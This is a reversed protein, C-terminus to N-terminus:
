VERNIENQMSMRVLVALGVWHYSVTYTPFAMWSLLISMVAVFLIARDRFDAIIPWAIRTLLAVMAALGIVGQEALIEAYVNNAIRRYDWDYFLKIFPDAYDKLAFAYGQIGVGFVPNDVFMNLASKVSALRDYRSFSGPNIEKNALKNVIEQGFLVYVSVLVLIGCLVLPIFDLTRKRLNPKLSLYALFALPFLLVLSTTSQSLAIGFVALIMGEIGYKAGQVKAHWMLFFSLLYYSGAQNGEIFVGGRYVLYDDSVIYTAAHLLVALFLGRHWYKAMLGTQMSRTCIVFQFGFFCIAILILKKIPIWYYQVQEGGDFIQVHDAMSYRYYGWMVSIASIAFVVLMEAMGIPAQRGDSRGKFYIMSILILLLDAPRIIYAWDIAPVKTHPLMILITAFIFREM